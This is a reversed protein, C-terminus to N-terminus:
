YSVTVSGIMGREETSKGSYVVEAETKINVSGAKKEDATTLNSLKVSATYLAQNENRLTAEVKVKYEGPSVAKGAADTGDWNYKLLGNKPTPGSVADIQTKTMESLKSQKVWVPLSMERKKWGGAATFKTAYLTKIYNGRADEIWVAFQNSAFGNQKTFTFSIEVKNTEAYIATLAFILLFVFIIKKM